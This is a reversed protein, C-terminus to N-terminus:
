HIKRNFRSLQAHVPVMKRQWNLRSLFSARGETQPLRIIKKKKSAVVDPAKARPQRGTAVAAAAGKSYSASKPPVQLKERSSEDEGSSPDSVNAGM